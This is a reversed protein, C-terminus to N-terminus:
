SGATKTGIAFLTKEGRIYIRGRAVAPSAYIPEGISSRGIVEHTPGARLVYVDGDESSLLIKGDIAVPSAIFTAANPVRGGEYKVAGTKADLCTVLGKDTLLYLYDRYLIPSPVYATGKNYKWLIRPTGTVDGTGGPRIAVAVKEPYGSSVIVLDPGAVPSPVANSELGKARWLEKGTAPDYAIVWETGATVLEDHGGAPVVIPTAWSVQVQRPVRWAEKGTRADLAALFSKEGNDEDCQLILLGDHLVPSTGDGVSMTAIPGLSAKWALIGDFDYAYVGQSGFFAYVREGDTVPTPSAFSAKKHRSDYPTGEYATRDWLVKGSAVDLALVKLTIRRDGGMADPHVFPQGEAVHAVPRAGPVVDGEVATTLFIREGWVIPSSHGRGPISAKWLVDKESWQTPIGLAGSVGRGGPGRWGPWNADPEPEAAGLIAASSAVVSFLLLPVVRSMRAEKVAPVRRNYPRAREGFFSTRSHAILSKVKSAPAVLPSM